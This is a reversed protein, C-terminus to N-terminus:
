KSYIVYQYPTLQQAKPTWVSDGTLADVFRDRQWEMPLTIEQDSASANVVVLVKKDDQKRTFMAVHDTSYDAIQGYRAAATNVYAKMLQTYKQLTANDASFNLLKYNFFNIQSVDGIEQSSYIMPVGGLFFTIAAAALQGDATKYWKSPANESSADHTTTYRLRDKGAPTNNFESQSTNLLNVVNSSYIKQVAGLYSWSYLWDFGANYYDTKSTEALLIADPKIQRIATIASQWFDAPVGHAYDCRYGDIDAERVWYLLADQMADRVEQKNYDLPVVDNWNTEDAVPTTYWDPHDIYWQNDWATHNAVWDLIVLMGRQHCDDVLAKLDALTGFKPDIAKFDKVCYPSNVTKVTGRPHIPMLWLVDVQMERLTPVYSQIARFADTQAFLRENCEYVVHKNALKYEKEPQPQPDDPKNKEDGCAVLAASLMLSLFFFKKSM